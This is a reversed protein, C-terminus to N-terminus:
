TSKQCNGKTSGKLTFDKKFKEDSQLLKNFRLQEKPSLSNSFYKEILDTNSM